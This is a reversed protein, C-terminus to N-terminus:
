NLSNNEPIDAIVEYNLGKNKLVLSWLDKAKRYFLYNIDGDAVLWDKGDLEEKLQGESWGSYGLYFRIQYPKVMGSEILFKLKKFDGGWFVGPQVEISDDLIHGITHVYYVNDNAVPGGYYIYSDFEPFNALVEHVALNTPKNLIFGISGEKETHDVLYVVTRKFHPDLSYPESVLIDGKKIVDKL